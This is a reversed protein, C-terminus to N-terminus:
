RTSALSLGICDALYEGLHVLDCPGSGGGYCLDFIV